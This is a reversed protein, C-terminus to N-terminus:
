FAEKYIATLRERRPQINDTQRLCAVVFGSYKGNRLEQSNLKVSYTNLRAFIELVDSDSAGHLTECIFSFSRIRDQEEPRLDSFRKGAYLADLSKSLAYKGDLYDLVARIRQQGDVVERITHTKDDSQRVRLYIPPVPKGSILTDILYSRAPTTWVDRRQFKPVLVLAKSSRWGIFDLITYSSREPREM